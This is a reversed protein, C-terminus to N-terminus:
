LSGAPHRASVRRLGAVVVPQVLKQTSKPVESARMFRGRGAMVHRLAPPLSEQDGAMLIMSQFLESLWKYEATSLHGRARARARTSEAIPPRHGIAATAAAVVVAAAAAAAARPTSPPAAAPRHRTKKTLLFYFQNFYIMLFLLFGCVAATAWAARVLFDRSGRATIVARL